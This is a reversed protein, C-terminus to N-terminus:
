VQLLLGLVDEILTRHVIDRAVYMPPAAYVLGAQALCLVRGPERGDEQRGLLM